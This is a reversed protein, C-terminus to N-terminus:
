EGEELLSFLMILSNVHDCRDKATDGLTVFEYFLLWLLLNCKLRPCQLSHCWKHTFTKQLMFDEHPLFCGVGCYPMTSHSARCAAVFAAPFPCTTPGQLRGFLGARLKGGQGCVAAVSPAGATCFVPQQRWAATHSMSEPVKRMSAPDTRLLQGSQMGGPHIQFAPWVSPRLSSILM